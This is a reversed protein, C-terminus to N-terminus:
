DQDGSSLGGVIVMFPATPSIPPPANPNAPNVPVIHSLSFFRPDLVQASALDFSNPTESVTAM